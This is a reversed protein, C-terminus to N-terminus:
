RSKKAKKLQVTVLKKGRIETSRVLGRVDDTLRALEGTKPRSSDSTYVRQTLTIARDVAQGVPLVEGTDRDVMSAARIQRAVAGHDWREVEDDEYVYLVGNRVIPQGDLAKSGRMVVFDRAKRMAAALQDLAEVFTVCAEGGLDDSEETLQALVDAAAHIDEPTIPM